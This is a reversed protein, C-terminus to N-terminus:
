RLLILKQTAVFSAAEVGDVPGIQMRYFYVGSAADGADWTVSHWGAQLEGNVLRAVEEGLASYITLSVWGAEPLAVDITTSPNFPNPYNQSLQFVVPRQVGDNVSVVSSLEDLRAFGRGNTFNPNTDGPQSQARALIFAGKSVWIYQIYTETTTGFVQGNFITQNIVKVDQRWRLCEFDGMPLRVTGWGDITNMTTDVSITASLPFFGSTDRETSMWTSNYALPLVGVTDKQYHVIATDPSTVQTSDGLNIFYMTTVNYANFLEYGPEIPTTIKQVLNADPFTGGLQAQQPTLFENVAFVSDVVVLTRFDWTQNAGASGVDIPISTREDDLTTQTSGIMGLFDSSTITIQSFAITPFILIVAVIWLVPGVSRM